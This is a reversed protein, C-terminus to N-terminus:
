PKYITFKNHTLSFGLFQYIAVNETRRKNTSVEISKLNRSEAFSMINAVLERGVGRNRYDANVYFEQIEGVLGAHHMLKQTHFTIFGAKAKGLEAILYLFNPNLINENFIEEITDRELIQNELECLSDYVFEFDSREINRVTIQLEM